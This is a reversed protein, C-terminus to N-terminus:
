IYGVWRGVKHPDMGRLDLIKGPGFREQTYIHKTHQPIHTQLPVNFSTTKPYHFLSEDGIGDQGDRWGESMHLFCLGPLLPLLLMSVHLYMDINYIYIDTNYIYIYRYIHVCVESAGAKANPGQEV